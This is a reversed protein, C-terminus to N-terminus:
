PTSPLNKPTKKNAKKPCDRKLHNKDGYTFYGKNGKKFTAAITEALKADKSNRIRSQSLDEFLWYYDWDWSNSLYRKSM